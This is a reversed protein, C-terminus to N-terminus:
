CSCAACRISRNTGTFTWLSPHRVRRIVSQHKGCCTRTWMGRGMPRRRRTVSRMRVAASLRSHTLPVCCLFPCETRTPVFAYLILHLPDLAERERWPNAVWLALPGDGEGDYEYEYEHEDADGDYLDEEERGARDDDDEDKDQEVHLAEVEEDDRRQHQTEVDGPQPPQPPPPHDQQAAAEADDSSQQAPDAVRESGQEAASGNILLALLSTGLLVLVALRLHPVRAGGGDGM